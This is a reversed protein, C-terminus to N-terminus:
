RAARDSRPPPGSSGSGRLSSSNAQPEAGARPASSQTRTQRQEHIWTHALDAIKAVVLLDDRSFSDTNRWENEDRYSRSFTVNHIINDGAKNEWVAAKVTGFRIEHVPM